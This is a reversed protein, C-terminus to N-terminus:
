SGSGADAPAAPPGSEVTFKAEELIVEYRYGLGLDKNKGLTGTALVTSGVMPPADTTTVTLDNTTAEGTGDRLHVWNKGMINARVKVVRARLVVKQDALQDRQAYIEAITKGGDAKKLGALDVATFAKGPLPHAESPAGTAAPAAPKAAPKQCAALPLILTAAILSLALPKSM